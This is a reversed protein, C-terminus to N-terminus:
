FATLDDGYLGAPTDIYRLVVWCAVGTGVWAVFVLAANAVIRHPKSLM